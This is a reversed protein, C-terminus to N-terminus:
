ELDDEPIDTRSLIADQDDILAEVLAEFTPKKAVIYNPIWKDGEYHGSPYIEGEGFSGRCVDM